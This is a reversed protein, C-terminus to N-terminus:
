STTLLYFADLLLMRSRSQKLLGSGAHLILSTCFRKRWCAPLRLSVVRDSARGTGYRTRRTSMRPLALVNSLLVVMRLLLIDNHWKPMIVSAIKKDAPPARACVGDAEGEGLGFLEDDDVSSFSKKLFM